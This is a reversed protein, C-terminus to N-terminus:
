KGQNTHFVVSTLQSNPGIDSGAAYVSGNPFALMADLGAFGNGHAVPSITWKTGNWHEIINIFGLNQDQVQGCAWVDNSSVASVGNLSSQSLVAGSNASPVIKWTRGDWHETLTKQNGFPLGRYSGVAWIDNTAIATIGRGFSVDHVKGNLPVPVSVLNWQRGDFHMAVTNTPVVGGSDGVAWIDNASIVAIGRMVGTQGNPLAPLSVPSWRTGDFHEIWPSPVQDGGNIDGVAFINNASVAKVALLEIGPVTQFLSWQNGEFHEIVGVFDGNGPPTINELTDGVAWVDNPSVAAVANMTGESEGKGQFVVLPFATWAQGNFRMSIFDGAAWVDNKADASLSFLINAPGLNPTVEQTWISKAALGPKSTESDQAQAIPNLLTALFIFCAPLSQAFRARHWFMTPEKDSSQRTRLAGRHCNVFIAVPTVAYVRNSLLLTRSLFERRRTVINDFTQQQL